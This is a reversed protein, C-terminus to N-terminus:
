RTHFHSKDIHYVKIRKDEDSRADAILDAELDLLTRFRFNLAEILQNKVKINHTETLIPNAVIDLVQQSPVDGGSRLLLNLVALSKPDLDLRRGRYRMGKEWVVIKGRERYKKRGLLVLGLVAAAGLIGGAPKWPFGEQHYMPEERVPKGLFEAEPVLDYYLDVPADPSGSTPVARLLYFLGNHYYSEYQYSQPMKGVVNKYRPRRAYYTLRNQAPDAIAMDNSNPMGYLIRDGMHAFTFYSHFYHPMVGLEEWRHAGTDLQWIKNYPFTLLPNVPDQAIGNFVWIQDANQTIQALQVGMPVETSGSPALLEWERSAQSFYTIFNRASWFGYGGYRMLTDNRAFITSNIQMNHDFSNDIRRLSDGELRCVLGGQRHVFYLTADACVAQYSDPFDWDSNPLTTLRSSQYDPALFARISDPWIAYITQTKPDFATAKLTQANGIHFTQGRAPTFGALGLCLLCFILARLGNRM